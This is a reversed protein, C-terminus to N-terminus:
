IVDPNVVTVKVAQYSLYELRLKNQCYVSDMAVPVSSTRCTAQVTCKEHVRNSILSHMESNLSNTNFYHRSQEGFTRAALLPMIFELLHDEGLNQTKAPTRTESHTSPSICASRQSSYSWLISFSLSPTTDYIYSTSM